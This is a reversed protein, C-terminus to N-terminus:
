GNEGLIFTSDQTGMNKIGWVGLRFHSKNTQTLYKVDMGNQVVTVQASSNQPYKIFDGNKLWMLPNQPTSPTFQNNFQNIISPSGSTRDVNIIKSGKYCTM